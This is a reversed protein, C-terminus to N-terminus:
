PRQPVDVVRKQGEAFYAIRYKSKRNVPLLWESELLFGTIGLNFYMVKTWSPGGTSECSQLELFAVAPDPYQASLQTAIALAEQFVRVEARAVDFTVREGPIATHCISTAAAPIWIVLEMSSRLGVIHLGDEGWTAVGPGASTVTAPFGRRVGAHDVYSLQAGSLLDMGSSFTYITEDPKDIAVYIRNASAAGGLITVRPLPLASVWDSGAASIEYEGDSFYQSEKWAFGDRIVAVRSAGRVVDDLPRAYIYGAVKEPPDVVFEIGPLWSWALAVRAPPTFFTPQVQFRAGGEASSLREDSLEVEYQVGPHLDDIIMVSQLPRLNVDAVEVTDDILIPSFFVLHELTPVSDVPKIRLKQNVPWDAPLSPLFQIETPQLEAEVAKFLYKSELAPVAFVPGARRKVLFIGERRSAARLIQDVPQWESDLVAAEFGSATNSLPGVRRAVLEEELATSSLLHEAKEQRQPPTDVQNNTRSEQESDNLALSHESPPESQDPAQQAPDSSGSPDTSCYIGVLAVALLSVIVLLNRRPVTM